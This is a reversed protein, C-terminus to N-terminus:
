PVVAAPPLGGTAPEAAAPLGDTGPSDQEDRVLDPTGPVPEGGDVPEAALATPAPTLTPAVPTTAVTETAALQQKPARMQVIAQRADRAPRVRVFRVDGAAPMVMGLRQAAPGIRQSSSLRAVAGRLETNQRQLTDTTEVARGIGANLKLMSVQMAVIGGLLAGIVWIWARGRLLGDILRGHARGRAALSRSRVAAPPRRAPGSVRRAVRPATTARRRAAATATAAAPSM